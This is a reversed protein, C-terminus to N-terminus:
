LGCYEDLAEKFKAALGYFDPLADTEEIHREIRMGFLLFMDLIEQPCEQDHLIGMAAYFNWRRQDASKFQKKHAEVMLPSYGWISWAERGGSGNGSSPRGQGPHKSAMLTM